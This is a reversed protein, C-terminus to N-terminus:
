KEELDGQFKLMVENWCDCWHQLLEVDVPKGNGRALDLLADTVAKIKRHNRKHQPIFQELQTLVITGVSVGLTILGEDTFDEVKPLKPAPPVYPLYRVRNGQQTKQYLEM